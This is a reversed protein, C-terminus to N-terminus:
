VKVPLHPCNILVYIVVADTGCRQICIVRLSFNTEEHNGTNPMEYMYAQHKYTQPLPTDQLFSLMMIIMVANNNTVDARTHTHTHTRTHAHTYLICTTYTRM